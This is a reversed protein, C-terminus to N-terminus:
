ECVIRKPFVMIATKDGFIKEKVEKIQDRGPYQTSHSISVHLLKGHPTLDISRLVKIGSDTVWCELSGPESMGYIVLQMLAKPVEGPYFKM